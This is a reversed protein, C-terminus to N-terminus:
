YRGYYSERMADVKDYIEDARHLEAKLYHDLEPGDEPGPRYYGCGDNIICDGNKNAKAIMSRLRRDTHPNKPRKLARAPGTGIRDFLIEAHSREEPTTGHDQKPIPAGSPTSKKNKLNM